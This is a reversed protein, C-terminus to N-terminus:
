REVLMKRIKEVTEAVSTRQMWAPATILDPDYQFILWDKSERPYEKWEPLTKQLNQIIHGLSATNQESTDGHDYGYARWLLERWDVFTRFYFWTLDAARRFGTIAEADPVSSPDISFVLNRVQSALELAMRNSQLVVSLPQKSYLQGLFSEKGAEKEFGTQGPQFLMTWKFALQSQPTEDLYTTKWLQYSAFLAQQITEANERGFHLEAWRKTIDRVPELPNWALRSFLYVTALAPSFGHRLFDYEDYKEVWMGPFICGGLWPGWANVTTVGNKLCSQFRDEWFTPYFMLRGWGDYQRFCDFTVSFPRLRAAGERILPNERANLFFDGNTNKTDFMLDTEPTGKLFQRFEDMTGAAWWLRFILQKGLKRVITGYYHSAMRGAGEPERWLKFGRYALRPSPETPTVIVGDLRTAQFLETFKADVFKWTLETEDSLNRGDLHDPLSFEYIQLFLQMHLQHAYDALENLAQRFVVSRQRHLSDPGYVQHGDGFLDYNIYDEVNLNLFSVTNFGLMLLERMAAKAYAVQRALVERNVFPASRFYYGEDPLGFVVGQYSFIRQPFVPTESANLDWNFKDHRIEEALRYVGYVLGVGSSYIGVGNPEPKIAYSQSAPDRDKEFDGKGYLAVHKLGTPTAAGTAFQFGRLALSRKLEEIGLRLALDGSPVSHLILPVSHPMESQGLAFLTSWFCVLLFRVVARGILSM